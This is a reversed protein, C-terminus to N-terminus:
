GLRTGLGDDAGKFGIGCGVVEGIEGVNNVRLGEAGMEITEVAANSNAATRLIM